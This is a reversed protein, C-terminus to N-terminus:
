LVNYCMIVTIYYRIITDYYYSSKSIADSDETCSRNQTPSRAQLPRGAPGAARFRLPSHLSPHTRIPYPALNCDSESPCVRGAESASAAGRLLCVRLSESVPGGRTPPMRAVSRLCAM